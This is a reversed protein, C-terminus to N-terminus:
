PVAFTLSAWVTEWVVNKEKALDKSPERLVVTDVLYRHSPRVPLVVLGKDDTRHITTKVEGDSSKEFLEIQANRHIDNKYYAVVTMGESINDTYPNQLAVLEIELGTKKDGGAGDGVAILSKSFRTYAEQFYHEALSRAKHRELMNPFDKHDAFNQFKEWKTYTIVSVSSQHVVVNLGSQPAKMNLAPSDGQRAIVPNQQDPSVLDFRTTNSSLYVIDSGEFDDGIRLYAELASQEDVKYNEPELWFEHAIGTGTLGCLIILISLCKSINTRKSMSYM